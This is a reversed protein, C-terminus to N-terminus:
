RRTFGVYIMGLNLGPNARGGTGANSIHHFKYGLLVAGHPSYKWQLAGGVESMFTFRTARPDPVRRTFWLMGADVGLLLQVPAHRLLQWQLGLPSVGFAYVTHFTPVTRSDMTCITGSPCPPAATPPGPNGAIIAAPILDVTYDLSGSGWNAISWGRRLALLYVDRYHTGVRTSFPYRPAASLLVGLFPPLRHLTDARTASDPPSPDQVAAQSAGAAVTLALTALTVRFAVAWPRM